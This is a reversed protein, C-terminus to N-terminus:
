AASMSRMSVFPSFFCGETWGKWPRIFAAVWCSLLQVIETESLEPLDRWVAIASRRISQVPEEGVARVRGVLLVMGASSRSVASLGLIREERRGVVFGRVTDTTPAEWEAIRASRLRELRARDDCGWKRMLHNV